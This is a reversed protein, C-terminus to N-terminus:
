DKFILLTDWALIHFLFPPRPLSLLNRSLTAHFCQYKWGVAKLKLTKLCCLGVIFVKEQNGAVERWNLKLHLGTQEFQSAPQPRASTFLSGAAPGPTTCLEPFIHLHFGASLLANRFATSDVWCLRSGAYCEQGPKRGLEAKEPSLHSQCIQAAFQKNM